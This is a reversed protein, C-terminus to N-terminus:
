CGIERVRRLRRGVEKGVEKRVEKGKQKMTKTAVAPVDFLLQWHKWLQGVLTNEVLQPRQLLEDITPRVDPDSHMLEMLLELTSASLGKPLDARGQPIRGLVLHQFCAGLSYIDVKSTHPVTSGTRDCNSLQAANETSTEPPSYKPSGCRGTLRQEEWCAWGFDCIRLSGEGDVLLNSPKLDRHVAGEAHLGQVGLCAERLWNFAEEESMPGHQTALDELCQQCLDFRLFIHTSTRTVALLQVLHQAGAFEELFNVERELQTLMLRQRMPEIEIVKLAFAESTRKDHVKYVVAYAGVGLVKDLSYTSFLPEPLVSILRTLSM